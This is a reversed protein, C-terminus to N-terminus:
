QLPKLYDQSVRFVIIEKQNQLQKRILDFLSMLIAQREYIYLLSIYVKYYIDNFVPSVNHDHWSITISEKM